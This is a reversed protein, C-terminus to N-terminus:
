PVRVSFRGVIHRVTGPAEATEGTAEQFIVEGTLVGARLSPGIQGIRRSVTQGAAVDFHTSEVDYVQPPMRSEHWQLVYDSRAGTIAVRSSFSVLAETKGQRSRILRV